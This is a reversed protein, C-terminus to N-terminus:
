NVIEHILCIHESILIFQGADHPSFPALIWCISVQVILPSTRALLNETTPLIMIIIIQHYCNQGVVIMMAHLYRLELWDVGM